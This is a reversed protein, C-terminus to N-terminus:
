EMTSKESITNKYSYVKEICNNTNYYNEYYNSSSILSTELDENSKLFNVSISSRRDM